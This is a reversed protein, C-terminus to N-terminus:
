KNKKSLFWNLTEEVYAKEWVNHGVNEYLSLKVDDNTQLLREVMDLTNCPKVSTDLLGHFAWVPMTLRKANWPMGGGCVPLIAAFKEPFEMATFWTGFGGMSLGTLYVRKKDANFYEVVRDIFSGIEQIHAVWFTDKPCQPQVLICDIQAEDTFLKSFGHTEVLSLEDSGNGREGAGHLLFIIPLNKSEKEPVRAVFPFEWDNKEFCLKKM